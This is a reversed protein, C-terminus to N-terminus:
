WTEGLRRGRSPHPIAANAGEYDDVFGRGPRLADTWFPDFRQRGVLPVIGRFVASVAGPWTTGGQGWCEGTTANM